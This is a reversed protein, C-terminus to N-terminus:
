LNAEDEGRAPRTEMGAVTDRASERPTDDARATRGVQGRNTPLVRRLSRVMGALGEPWVLLVLALVGGLVLDDGYTGLSFMQQQFVILATGVIPGLLQRRGALIVATLMLLLFYPEFLDPGVYARQYAYLWGAVASVPASITFVALRVRAPDIGLARALHPNSQVMLARTGLRSRRFRAVFYVTVVLLGFAIPWLQFSTAATYTGGIAPFELIPIGVIGDSGGLWETNEVLTLAILASGYTVLSFVFERTRLTFLGVVYALLTMTALVALLSSIPGWGGITTAVGTVYAGGAWFLTHGLSVEGLYSLIFDAGYAMVAYIVVLVLTEYVLESGGLLQPLYFGAVACALLALGSPWRNAEATTAAAVHTQGQSANATSTTSV